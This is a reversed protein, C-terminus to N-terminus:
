VMGYWATGHPVTDYKVMGYWVAGYFSTAYPVTGYRVIVYWLLIKVMGSWVM